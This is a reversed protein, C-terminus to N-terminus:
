NCFNISLLFINSFFKFVQKWMRAETPNFHDLYQQFWQEKPLDKAESLLPEGINGKKYRGRMFNRLSLGYNFITLIIVLSFILKM